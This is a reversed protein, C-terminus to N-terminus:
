SGPLQCNGVVSSVASDKLVSVLPLFFIVMFPLSLLGSNPVEDEENLVKLTKQKAEDLLRSTRDQEGPSDENSEDEDSSEESSSTDKMSNMKRTLRAHIHQQEAIAARTGEDQANLGREKIRKAWM